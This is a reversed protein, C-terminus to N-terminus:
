GEGTDVSPRLLTHSLHGHVGRCERELHETLANDGVSLSQLTHCHRTPFRSNRIRLSSQVASWRVVSWMGCEWNWMLPIASLNSCLEWKRAPVNGSSVPPLGERGHHFGSLFIAGDPAWM